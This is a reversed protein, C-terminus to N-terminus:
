NEERAQQPCNFARLLIPLSLGYKKASGLVSSLVDRIKDISEHSLDSSAMGSFYAQVTM